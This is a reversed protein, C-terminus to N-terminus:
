GEGGPEAPPPSNEAIWEDRQAKTAKAWGSDALIEAQRETKVEVTSGLEKHHILLPGEYEPM